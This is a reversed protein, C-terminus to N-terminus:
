RRPLIIDLHLIHFKVNTCCTGPAVVGIAYWVPSNLSGFPTGHPGRQAGVWGQYTQSLMSVRAIELFNHMHAMNLSQMSPVLWFHKERLSRNGPAWICMFAGLFWSPPLCSPPDLGPAFKRHWLFKYFHPWHYFDMLIIPTALDPEPWNWTQFLTKEDWNIHWDCCNQWKTTSPYDYWM